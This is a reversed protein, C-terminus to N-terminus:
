GRPPADTSSVALGAAVATRVAAARTPAGLKALLRAVHGEATRVSIYLAEAIERDAKGAAVLGLVEQERPSLRVGHHDGTEEGAATPLAMAQVEAIATALPHGRGASWAARLGPEGLAARVMAVARERAARDAPLVVAVGLQERAAEAAGLLLAAREPQGWAAAALASGDLADVVVRPDGQEGLLALSDRYYGVAGAHDSRDRAIDGLDRLSRIVGLVDGHARCARLVEEYRARATELDGRGHAVVGLIALTRRKAAAAVAPDPITAATGLAAELLGEARDFDEREIAIWGKWVLAGCVTIADAHGRLLAISEDLLDEGRAREGQVYLLQGLEVLAQARPLTPGAQAGGLARELWKRGERIHGHGHWFRGLAAALHLVRDGDGRRHLWELATRLNVHEDELRRLEQGGGPLFIALNSGKALSLCWEAHAGRVLDDEESVALQDLAFGRITELMSFRPGRERPEQRVLSRDVLSALGDFVPPAPRATQDQSGDPPHRAEVTVAVVVFEAAELTFGGAFVALYRFLAQEDETLLDYSWAIADRMTQHRRPADRPGGTLLPMRRDLRDRLAVLPLFNVRAAVLEIALPLGDLRRCIDAVVPATAETVAFCPVVATAREVFLRVAPARSVDAPSAAMRSKPVDLPPVPLAHEGTVRLLTRSTVLITLRPCAALLDPLIDAAALLHEFNDLVLCTDLERLAMVLADRVRHGGAENIGLAHAIADPALAPAPVAALPVFRVGDAFAAGKALDGAVEIALRTKGVGGPGTLTLLRVDDRRLLSVALAAERERGVLSTLPAPVPTGLRDRGELPVSQIPERNRDTPPPDAM